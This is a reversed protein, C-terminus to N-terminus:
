GRRMDDSITLGILERKSRVGFKRRINASHTRITEVGLQLEAAIEGHSKGCVLYELVDIERPTLSAAHPPYSVRIGGRHSGVVAPRGEAAARVTALIDSAAADTSICSAGAALLRLALARTPQHAVAVIATAPQALQVRELMATGVSAEALIAVQPARQTLLEELAYDEVDTALLELGADDERLM